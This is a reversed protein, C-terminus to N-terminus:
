GLGMPSTNRWLTARFRYRDGQYTMESLEIPRSTQDYTTQLCLLVADGPSVGLVDAERPDASRAQVCFDARTAVLGYSEALVKYISDNDFSREDLGPAYSLPVMSWQLAVAVGDLLRLRELYFLKAGPAVRLTEAEDLTAAKVESRLVRASANLGRSEAMESFSMLTNAPEEVRPEVVYWGRGPSSEILGDQVLARLAQRLTVRSVGFRECLERESPLREGRRFTGGAIMRVFVDRVQENLPTPRDRDILESILTTASM